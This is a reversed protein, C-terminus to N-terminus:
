HYLPTNYLCLHILYDTSSLWFYFKANKERKKKKKHSDLMLIMHRAKIKIMFSDGTYVLSQEAVKFRKEFKIFDVFYYACKIRTNLFATILAM